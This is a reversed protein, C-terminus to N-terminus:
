SVLLLILETLTSTGWCKNALSNIVSICYVHLACKMQNVSKSKCPEWPDQFTRFNTSSLRSYTRCKTQHTGSFDFWHNLLKQLTIQRFNLVHMYILQQICHWTILTYLWHFSCYALFWKLYCVAYTKSDVVLSFSMFPLVTPWLKRINIASFLGSIQMQWKM